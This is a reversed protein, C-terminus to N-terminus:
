RPFPLLAAAVVEGKEKKEQEKENFAKRAAHRRFWEDKKVWEDDVEDYYLKEKGEKPQGTIYSKKPTPLFLDQSQSWPLEKKTDPDESIWQGWISRDYKSGERPWLILVRMMEKLSLWRMVLEGHKEVLYALARADSWPDGPIYRIKEGTNYLSNKLEENWTNWTGNQFLVGPTEGEMKHVPSGPELLFPHTLERVVGGVSAKRFHIVTGGPSLKPLLKKLQPLDMGRKFNVTKGGKAPWAVGIGDPHKEQALELLADSPFASHINFMVCM